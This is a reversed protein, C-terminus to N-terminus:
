GRHAKATEAERHATPSGLHRRVGHDDMALFVVHHGQRRHQIPSAWLRQRDRHHGAGAVEEVPLQRQQTPQHELVQGRLPM